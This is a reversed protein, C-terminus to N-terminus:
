TLTAAVSVTGSFRLANAAVIAEARVWVWTAKLTSSM